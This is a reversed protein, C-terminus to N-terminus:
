ALEDESGDDPEALVRKRLMEKRGVTEKLPTGYRVVPTRPTAALAINRIVPKPTPLSTEASRVPESPQLSKKTVQRTSSRVSRRQSENSSSQSPAPSPAPPPSSLPSSSPMRMQAQPAPMFPSPPPPLNSLFYPGDHATTVPSDAYRTATAPTDVTASSDSIDGDNETDIVMPETRRPPTSARLPPNASYPPPPHPPHVPSSEEFVPEFRSRAPPPPMMNTPSGTNSSRAATPNARQNAQLSSILQSTTMGAATLGKARLYQEARAFLNITSTPTNALRDRLQPAPYTYTTPNSQNFRRDSKEQNYQREDSTRRPAESENSAKASSRRKKKKSQKPQEMRLVGFGSTPGFFNLNHEQAVHTSPSDTRLMGFSGVKPDSTDFTRYFGAPGHPFYKEKPVRKNKVPEPTAVEPTDSMYLTPAAVGTIPHRRYHGGQGDSFLEAPPPASSDRQSDTDDGEDGITIPIEGNDGHRAIQKDMARRLLPTRFPSMGPSAATHSPGPTSLEDDEGDMIEIIERKIMVPRPLDKLVRTYRGSLGGMTRGPMHATIQQWTLGNIEKLRKILDDEERSYGRNQRVRNRSNAADSFTADDTLAPDLDFSTETHKLLRRRKKPRSATPAWLSQGGSPSDWVSPARHPAPTLANARNDLYNPPNFADEPLAPASWIGQPQGPFHPQRNLSTARMLFDAIQNAISQGLQHIAEPDVRGEADQHPVLQNLSDAISIQPLSHAVETSPVVSTNHYQQEHTLHGNNVVVEGTEMDIEDGVGTFDKAYKEFIREFTGKLKLDIRQRGRQYEDPDYDIRDDRSSSRARHFGDFAM